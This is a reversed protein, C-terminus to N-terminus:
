IKVVVTSKEDILMSANRWAITTKNVKPVLGVAGSAKPKYRKARQDLLNCDIHLHM